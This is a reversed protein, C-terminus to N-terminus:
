CSIAKISPLLTVQSAGNPNTHNLPKPYSVWGSGLFIVMITLWVGSTASWTLDFSMTTFKMPISISDVLLMSRITVATPLQLMSWVLQVNVWLERLKRVTVTVMTPTDARSRRIRCSSPTTPRLQRALLSLRAQHLKSAAQFRHCHPDLDLSPTLLV